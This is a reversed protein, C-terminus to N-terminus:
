REPQAAVPEAQSEAGAPAKAAPQELPATDAPPPPPLYLPGKRGCGALLALALIPIIPLARHFRFMTPM